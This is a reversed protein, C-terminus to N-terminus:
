LCCNLWYSEFALLALFASQGKGTLQLGPHPGRLWCCQGGAGSCTAHAAKGVLGLVTLKPPNVGMCAGAAVNAWLSGMLFVSGGRCIETPYFLRPCTVQCWASLVRLSPPSRGLTRASAVSLHASPALSLVAGIRLSGSRPPCKRRTPVVCGCPQIHSLSLFCTFPGLNTGQCWLVFGLYM